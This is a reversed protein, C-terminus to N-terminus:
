RGGRLDAFSLKALLRKRRGEDAWVGWLWLIVPFLILSGLGGVLVGSWASNMFGLPPDEFTGDGRGLLITVDNSGSNAVALDTHGDANFNGWIL